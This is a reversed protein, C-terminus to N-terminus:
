GRNKYKFDDFFFSAPHTRLNRTCDLGSYVAEVPLDTEMDFVIEDANHHRELFAVASEEYM